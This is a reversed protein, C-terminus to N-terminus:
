LFTRIDHVGELQLLKLNPSAGPLRWSQRISLYRISSASRGAQTQFHPGGDDM